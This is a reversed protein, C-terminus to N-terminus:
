FNKSDEILSQIYTKSTIQHFVTIHKEVDNLKNFQKDCLTCSFESLIEIAENSKEM